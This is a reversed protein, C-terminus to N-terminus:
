MGWPGWGGDRVMAAAVLANARPDFATPLWANPGFQWRHLYSSARGTWTIHQFLGACGSSSNLAWPYGGSERNMVYLATATNGPAYKDFVCTVLRTIQRHAKAPNANWSAPTLYEGYQWTSCPGRWRGLDPKAQATTPAAICAAVFAAVLLKKM